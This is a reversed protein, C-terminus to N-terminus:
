RDKENERGTGVGERGRGERSAERWIWYDKMEMLEHHVLSGECSYGFVEVM